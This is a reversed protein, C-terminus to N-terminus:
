AAVTAKAKKALQRKVRLATQSLQDDSAKMLFNDLGGNHEVSRLASASVKFRM